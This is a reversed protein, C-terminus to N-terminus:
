QNGREIDLIEAKFTIQELADDYAKIATEADVEDDLVSGILAAAIGAGTVITMGISNAPTCKGSSKIRNQAASSSSAIYDAVIRGEEAGM